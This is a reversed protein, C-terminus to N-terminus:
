VREVKVTGFLGGPRLLLVVLIILLSVTFVMDGGLFGVYGIIIAKLLGLALGGVVAGVPSDLGGLTAAASAILFPGFMLSTSLGGQPALLSAALVSIAAALGWGIMLIGGVRIGVLGSSEQNNAVARMALGVKTKNFLLWLLVLLVLLVLFIGFREWRVPAGFLRFFDDADNPFVSPLSRANPGWIMSLLQNIGLFLGISAVVVAGPNRHEIPRIVVREITAALVFGVVMAMLIALGVPVGSLTLTSVVYAGFLGMEGQAFNLQGTARFVVVISLALMAYISGEGLGDVMRQVFLSFDFALMM